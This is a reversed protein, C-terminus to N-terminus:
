MPPDMEANAMRIRFTQPQLIVYRKAPSIPIPNAIRPKIKILSGGRAANSFFAM